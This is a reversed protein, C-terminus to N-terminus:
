RGWRSRWKHVEARALKAVKKEPYTSGIATLVDSAEAIPLRSLVQVVDAGISELLEDTPEIVAAPGDVLIDLYCKDVWPLMVGVIDALEEMEDDTADDLLSLDRATLETLAYGAYPGGLLRRLEPEVAPTPVEALLSFAGFRQHATRLEYPVEMLADILQRCREQDSRDPQWDAWALTGSFVTADTITALVQEASLSELSPQEPVTFGEERMHGVMFQIGFPTMAVQDDIFTVVGAFAMTRMLDRLERGVILELNRESVWTPRPASGLAAVAIPLMEDIPLTEGYGLAPALLYPLGAAVVPGVGGYWDEIEPDTQFALAAEALVTASAVPDDPWGDGAFLRKGVLVTAMVAVAVDFTFALNRLENMSRVQSVSGESGYELRDGTQLLEVLARCDAMKLNGTATLAAGKSGLYQRLGDVAIRLPSATASAAVELPRPVRVPPMKFMTRAERLAAAEQAPGTLMFPDTLAKREEFLLSNYRDVAAQLSAPDTFDIDAGSFAPGMFMGKAMGFNAPNGMADLFAETRKRAHGALHAAQGARGTWKGSSDLFELYATLGEIVGIWEAPPFSLKRPCWRLLYEDIDSVDFRTLAADAYNVDWQLFTEADAALDAVASSPRTGHLWSRFDTLLAASKKELRHQTLDDVLAVTARTEVPTRSM